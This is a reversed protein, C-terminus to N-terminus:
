IFIYPLAYTVLFTLVLTVDVIWLYPNQEVGKIIDMSTRTVDDLYMMIKTKMVRVM